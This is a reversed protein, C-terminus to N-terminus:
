SHQRARLTPVDGPDLAVGLRGLGAFEADVRDGPRIRVVPTMGGSLIRDGACLREGHAALTDAVLKVVEALDPLAAVHRLEEGNRTLRVGIGALSAGGRVPAEPLVAAAHFFNRRVIAELDPEVARMDLVELAPGVGGIAALAEGASAGGPLDAALYVAIEPEVFPEAGADLPLPERGRLWTRRTLTGVLSGSLGLRAQVAPDNLGIKWGLRGDAPLQERWRRLLAQTAATARPDM